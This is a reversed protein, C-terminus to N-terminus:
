RVADESHSIFSCRYRLGQGLLTYRGAGKRSLPSPLEYIRRASQDLVATVLLIRYADTRSHEQAARIETEGLQFEAADPADAVEAKVEFFLPRRGHRARFDYGLSDSGM